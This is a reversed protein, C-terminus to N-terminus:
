QSPRTETLPSLEDLMKVAVVWNRTPKGDKGTQILSDYRGIVARMRNLETELQTVRKRLQTVEKETDSIIPPTLRAPLDPTRVTFQTAIESLRAQTVKGVTGVYRKRTKGGMKTYAYWYEIGKRTERRVTLTLGGLSVSFSVNDSDLLWERDPITM